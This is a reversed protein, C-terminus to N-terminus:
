RMATKEHSLPLLHLLVLETPNGIRPIPVTNTLGASVVLHGDYVGRTYRPLLGQGPAYLGRGMLRIQGGHAHGSLILDIQRDRLAPYYEPHHCLLIRLGEERELRDVIELSPPHNGHYYASEMGGVTVGEMPRTLEGASYSVGMREIQALNERATPSTMDGGEGARSGMEHNGPAYCTPAIAAAERLFSFANEHDIRGDVGGNAGSPLDLRQTLDGAVAILDIPEARLAALAKQGSADHLDAVLAVTMPRPVRPLSLTYRTLRM